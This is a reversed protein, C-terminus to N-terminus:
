SPSPPRGRGVDVGLLGPPAPARLDHRRHRHPGRQDLEDRLRSPDTPLYGYPDWSSARTAPVPSRTWSGSGRCRRGPDDAYWVGWSDPASGILAPKTMVRRRPVRDRRDHPVLYPRQDGSTSSTASTPTPPRSWSPSRASRSTGGPSATPHTARAPRDARPHAGPRRRGTGGQGAPDGEGARRALRGRDRARRPQARQRGPRRAAADGDLRGSETDRYRYRTGFRQSGLEESLSGISHFGHNQVLVVIVKVREQVATVLETPMMLYGGDGVMAFVDRTEDALRIGSRRRCRTAWAPTATSWTTARATACGGCSTCTAPCRAPRACCSTARTASSTSAAWCRARPSCVRRRAPRDRVRAPPLGGRGPRGVRAM